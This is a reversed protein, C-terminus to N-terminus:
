GVGQDRGGSKKAGEIAQKAAIKRTLRKGPRPRSAMLLERSEASSTTDSREDEASIADGV